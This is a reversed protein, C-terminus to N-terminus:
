HAEEQSGGRERRRGRRDRPLEFRGRVALVPARARRLGALLAGVRARTERDLVWAEVDDPAPAQTLPDWPVTPRQRRAHDIATNRALRFLWAAFPACRERNLPLAQAMKLCIQQTLVASVACS